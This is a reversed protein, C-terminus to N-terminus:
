RATINEMVPYNGTTTFEGRGLGIATGTGGAPELPLRLEREVPVLTGPAFQFEQFGQNREHKAYETLAYEQDRLMVLAPTPDPLVFGHAQPDKLYKMLVDFLESRAARIEAFNNLSM